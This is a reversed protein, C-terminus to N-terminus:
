INDKNDLISLFINYMEVEDDESILVNIGFFIVIISYVFLSVPEMRKLYHNMYAFVGSSTLGALLSPGIGCGGSMYSGLKSKIHIKEIPININEAQEYWRECRKYMVFLTKDKDKMLKYVLKYEKKYRKVFERTYIKYKDMNYYSDIKNKYIDGINLIKNCTKKM